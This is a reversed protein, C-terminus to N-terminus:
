TQNHRKTWGLLLSNWIQVHARRKPRIETGEPAHHCIPAIHSLNNCFCACSVILSNRSRVKGHRHWDFCTSSNLKRCDVRHLFCFSEVLTVRLQRVSLLLTFFWWFKCYRRMRITHQATTSIPISSFKVAHLLKCDGIYAPFSTDPPQFLETCCHLLCMSVFLLKRLVVPGM